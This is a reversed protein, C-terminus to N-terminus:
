ERGLSAVGDRRAERDFRRRCRAGGAGGPETLVHVEGHDPASAGAHRRHDRRRRVQEGSQRGCRVAPQHRHPRRPERLEADQQRDLDQVSDLANFADLRVEFRRSGGLPLSKSVSLNLNSYQPGRMTYRASDLGISGPQPATFAAVNFQRYPDDSWGRGVTDGTLAIRANETSSGTLNVAGIGPISFTATTPMGYRLVYSASLQWGNALLGLGGSAVDPTRYVLNAMFIHPVDFGLPGYNAERDRGDIRAYDGDSGLTGKAASWSYYAGFMLGKSLRRSVSTQLANYNSYAAFEWLRIDGFGAYPRMFDAALANGGPIPSLPSCGSGTQGRTPDRYPAGYAAGYPVANLSRFQLLDDSKSGVYGM